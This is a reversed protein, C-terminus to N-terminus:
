VQLVISENEKSANLIIIIDDSLIFSVEKINNKKILYKIDYITNSDFIVSNGLSTYFCNTKKFM